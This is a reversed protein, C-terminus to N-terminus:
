EDDCGFNIYWDSEDGVIPIGKAKFKVDWEDDSVIFVPM